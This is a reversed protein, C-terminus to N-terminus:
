AAVSWRKKRRKRNPDRQRPEQPKMFPSEKLTPVLGYEAAWEDLIVQTTYEVDQEPVAVCDHVTLLPMAPREHVLRGAVREIMVRSERRQMERAIWGHGRSYYIDEIREKLGPYLQWVAQAFKDGFARPQDYLLTLFRKKVKGRTKGTLEVLRHYVEGTRCDEQLDNLVRYWYYGWIPKTNESRGRGEGKQRYDRLFRALLLPQASTVDVSVLEQGALRLYQRYQRPLNTVNTHVRGYPCVTFRRERDLMVDLFPHEGRPASPLLEVQRHWERLAIHTPNTIADWDRKWAATVNKMLEPHTVKRVGIRAGRYAEGLRYGYCKGRHGNKGLPTWPILSPHVYKGFVKKEDCDLVGNEKLKDLMPKRVHRPVFEEIFGSYLPVFTTEDVTRDVYRRFVITSVVWAAYERHARDVVRDLDLTEPLYASYFSPPCAPPRDAAPTPYLM